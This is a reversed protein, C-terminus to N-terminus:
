GNVVKEVREANDSKSLSLRIISDQLAILDHPINGSLTLIGGEQISHTEGSVGFNIHGSLVHVVIPYATKHEKMLQGQKMMIRIEKSFDTELMVSIIPKTAGFALNDSFSTNLM